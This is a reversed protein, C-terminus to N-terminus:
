EYWDGIKYTAYEEETVCADGDRGNNEFYVGWCEPAHHQTCVNTRGGTCTMYWYDDQYSLETITGTEPETIENYLEIGLMVLLTAIILGCMVMIAIFVRDLKDM